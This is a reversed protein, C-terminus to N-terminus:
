QIRYSFIKKKKGEKDSRGHRCSGFYSRIKLFFTHEVSYVLPNLLTSVALFDLQFMALRLDVM